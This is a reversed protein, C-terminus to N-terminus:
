FGTVHATPLYSIGFGTEARARQHFNKRILDQDQSLNVSYDDNHALTDTGPPRHVLALPIAAIAPLPMHHATDM